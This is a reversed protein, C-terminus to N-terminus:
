KYCVPAIEFRILAFFLFILVTRAIETFSHMKILLSLTLRSKKKKSFLVSFMVHQCVNLHTKPSNLSESCTRKKRESNSAFKIQDTM